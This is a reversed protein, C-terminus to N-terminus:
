PKVVRVYIRVDEILGSGYSGPGNNGAGLMLGNDSVALGSQTDRAVEQDDVCLIRSTGDWVLDIHHWQGDKIVAQSYGCAL